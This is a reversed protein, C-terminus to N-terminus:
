FQSVKVTFRISNESLDKTRVPLSGSWGKVELEFSGFYDREPEFKLTKSGQTGDMM